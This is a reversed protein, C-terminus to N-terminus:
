ISYKQKLFESYERYAKTVDDCDTHREFTSELSTAEGPLGLEFETAAEKAARSLTEEFEQLAKTIYTDIDNSSRRSNSTRIVMNERLSVDRNFLSSNNNVNIGYPLYPAPRMNAASTKNLENKLSIRHRVEELYLHKYRDLETKTVDQTKKMKSLEFELEKIRLEMQSRVSAYNNEKVQALSDQFAVQMELFLDVEKLKEAVNLRITEEFDRKYQEMKSYELMNVEVSSRLKVVQQELKKKTKELKECKRQLEKMSSLEQILVQNRSSVTELKATLDDVQNKSQALKEKLDKVEDELNTCCRSKVELSAESMSLTKLTNALEEQLQRMSVQNVHNRLTRLEMDLARLNFELEQKMEVEKKYQEERKTLEEQIKGYLSEANIRKQKEQKLTFRLSCLEDEWKIKQLELKSIIEKTKSLNKQLGKAMNEMEKNKRKLQECQDKKREIQRENSLVANQTKLLSAFDHQEILLMCAMHHCDPMHFVESIRESSLALDNFDDMSDITEKVEEKDSSTKKSYGHSEENETIPCLNNDTKGSGIPHMLGAAAASYISELVATEDNQHKEMEEVQLHKNESENCSEEEKETTMELDLEGSFDEVQQKLTSAGKQENVPLHVVYTEPLSESNSESDWPSEETQETFALASLTVRRDNKDARDASTLCDNITQAQPVSETIRDDKTGTAPREEGEKTNLSLDEVGSAPWSADDDGPKISICSGFHLETVSRVALGLGGFGESHESSWSGM